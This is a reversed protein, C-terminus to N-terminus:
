KMIKLEFYNDETYIEMNRMNEKRLYKNVVSVAM